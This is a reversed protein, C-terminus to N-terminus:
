KCGTLCSTGKHYTTPNNSTKALAIDASLMMLILTLRKM